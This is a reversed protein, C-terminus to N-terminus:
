PVKDFRVRWFTSATSGTSCEMTDFDADSSVVTAAAPVWHVLDTSSEASVTVDPLNRPRQFRFKPTSNQANLSTRQTSQAAPNLRWAYEAINAIGDGDPDAALQTVSGSANVSYNQWSWNGYTSPVDELKLLSGSATGQLAQVNVTLLTKSGLAPPATWDPATFLGWQTANDPNANNFVWVYLKTNPPLYTTDINSISGFVDGEAPFDNARLVSGSGASQSPTGAGVIGEALPKFVSKLQAYDPTSSVASETISFSGLRVACGQAILNGNKDAFKSGGVSSIIITSTAASVSASVGILAAVFSTFSFNM